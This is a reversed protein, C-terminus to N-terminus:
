AYVFCMEHFYFQLNMNPFHQIPIKHKPNLKIQNTKIHEARNSSRQIKVASELCIHPPSPSLKTIESVCFQINVTYIM